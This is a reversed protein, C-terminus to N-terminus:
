QSQTLNNFDAYTKNFIKNKMLKDFNLGWNEMADNPTM